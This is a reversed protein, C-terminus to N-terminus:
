LMPPQAANPHPTATKSAPQLPRWDAAHLPFLSYDIISQASAYWLQIYENLMNVLNLWSTHKRM